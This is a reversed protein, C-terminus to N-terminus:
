ATGGPDEHSATRPDPAPPPDNSSPPAATPHPGPSDLLAAIGARPEETGPDRAPTALPVRAARYVEELRENVAVALVNQDFAGLPLLGSLYADVDFLDGNGGLAVYRLWLESVTLEARLRAAEVLEHRETGAV